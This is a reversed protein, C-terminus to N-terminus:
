FLVSIDMISTELRASSQYMVNFLLEVAVGVALFFIM